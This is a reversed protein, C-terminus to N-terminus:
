ADTLAATAVIAGDETVVQMSVAHLLAADIGVAWVNARVDDYGWSGVTVTRGDALVLQCYVEQNRQQPHDITVLVYPHAGDVLDISGSRAGSGGVIVGSRVVADGHPDNRGLLAVGGAAAAAVLVIAAAM